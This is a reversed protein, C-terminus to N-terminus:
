SNIDITEIETPLLFMETEDSVITAGGAHFLIIGGETHRTGTSDLYSIIEDADVYVKILTENSNTTIVVRLGYYIDNYLTGWPTYDVTVTPAGPGGTIKYLQIENNLVSIGAWYGYIFPFNDSTYVGIGYVGFVTSCVGKVRSYYCYNNWNVSDLDSSKVIENISSNSMTLVGNAVVPTTPVGSLTSWRSLDGDITFTDLQRLYTIEFREGVPRMLKMIERVLTRNLHGSDVIRLNSYYEEGAVGTTLDIIWPDRGQHEEGLQTEDIIWRFDFWNWIRLDVGTLLTLMTVITDESGRQKWLAVSISILKRLTDSDLEDTIKQLKGTWGVIWQMYQLYEDDIEEVNWLSKLSFIKDHIVKWIEQSGQLFRKLLYGNKSDETRISAIFFRYMDLTLAEDEETEEFGLFEFTSGTLLQNYSLDQIKALAM